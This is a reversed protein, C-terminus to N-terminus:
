FFIIVKFKKCSIVSIMNIIYIKRDLKLINKRFITFINYLIHNKYYLNILHYYLFILYLKSLNKSIEKNSM